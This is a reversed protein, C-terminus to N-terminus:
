LWKGSGRRKALVMVTVSCGPLEITGSVGASVNEGGEGGIAARGCPSKSVIKEYKVRSAGVRRVHERVQREHFTTAM